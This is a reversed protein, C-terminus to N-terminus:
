RWTQFGNRIAAGDDSYERKAWVLWYKKTLEKGRNETNHAIGSPQSGDAPPVVAQLTWQVNTRRGWCQCGPSHQTEPEAGRCCWPFLSSVLPAPSDHVATLQDGLTWCLPWITLRLAWWHSIAMSPASAMATGLPIGSCHCPAAPEGPGQCHSSVPIVACTQKCAWPSNPFRLAPYHQFHWGNHHHDWLTTCRSSSNSLHGWFKICSHMQTKFIRTEIQWLSLEASKTVDLVSFLGISLALNFIANNNAPETLGHTCSWGCFTAGAQVHKSQHKSSTIPVHSSM